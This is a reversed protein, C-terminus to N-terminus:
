FNEWNGMNWASYSAFESIQKQQSVKLVDSSPPTPTTNEIKNNDHQQDEEWMREVLLSLNEWDFTNRFCNM